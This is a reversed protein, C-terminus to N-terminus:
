PQDALAVALRRALTAVAARLEEGGEVRFAFPVSALWE